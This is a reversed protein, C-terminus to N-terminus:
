TSSSCVVEYGQDYESLQTRHVSDVFELIHRPVSHFAFRLMAHSSFNCWSLFICWSTVSLEMFSIICVCNIYIHERQEGKM